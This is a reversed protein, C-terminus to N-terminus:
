IKHDFWLSAFELVRRAREQYTCNRVWSFANETLRERLEANNKLNLIKELLDDRSELSYFLAKDNGLINRHAYTDSAIIPIRRAAYEVIKIPFSDQFYPTDPYVVLGADFNDIFAIAKERVLYGQFELNSPIKKCCDQFAQEVSFGIIIFKLDLKRSECTSALNLIDGLSLVNGSSHFSGLYGVTFTKSSTSKRDARLESKNIAMGSVIINKTHLRLKIRLHESICVIVASKRLSLIKTQIILFKSVTRHIECITRFGFLNLIFSIQVDRSWIITNKRDLVSCLKLAYMIKFGHFRLRSKIGSSNITSNYYRSFPMSIQETEVRDIKSSDLNPTIVKAIYGDIEKVGLATFTTTVGYAKETPFRVDLVFLVQTNM